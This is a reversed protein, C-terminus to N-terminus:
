RVCWVLVPLVIAKTVRSSRCTLDLQHDERVQVLDRWLDLDVPDDQHFPASVQLAILGLYQHIGHDGIQSVVLRFGSGTTM